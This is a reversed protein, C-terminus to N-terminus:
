FPPASDAWMYKSLKGHRKPRLYSHLIKTYKENKTNMIFKSFFNFSELKWKIYMNGIYTFFHSNEFIKAEFVLFNRYDSM